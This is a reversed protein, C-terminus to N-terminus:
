VVISLDGCGVTCMTVMCWYMSVPISSYPSPNMDGRLMMGCPESGPKCTYGPFGVFDHDHPYFDGSETMQVLTGFLLSCTSVIMFLMVIVPFSRTTTCILLHMGALNRGAKFIRVVRILRLVRLVLLFKADM